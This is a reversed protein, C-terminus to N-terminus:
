RKEEGEIKDGSTRPEVMHKAFPKLMLKTRPEVTHKAKRSASGFLSFSGRRGCRREAKYPPLLQSM